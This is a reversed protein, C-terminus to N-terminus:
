LYTTCHAKTHSCDLHLIYTSSSRLLSLSMLDCEFFCYGVLTTIPVYLRQCSCLSSLISIKPQPSSSRQTPLVPESVSIASLLRAVHDLSYLPYQACHFHPFVTLPVLFFDAIYSITVQRSLSLSLGFVLPVLVVSREREFRSWGCLDQISGNM